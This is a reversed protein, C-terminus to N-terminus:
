FGYHTIFNYSTIGMGTVFFISFFTKWIFLPFRFIHMYGILELDIYVMIFCFWSLFFFSLNTGFNPIQLSNISTIVVSDCRWLHTLSPADTLVLPCWTNTHMEEEGTVTFDYIVPWTENRKEPSVTYLVSRPYQIHHHHKLQIIKVPSAQCSKKNEWPCTPLAKSELKKGPFEKLVEGLIELILNWNELCKLSKLSM